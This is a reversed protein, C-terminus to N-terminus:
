QHAAVLERLLDVDPACLVHGVIGIGLFGDNGIEGREQFFAIWLRKGGAGAVNRPGLAHRLNGAVGAQRALAQLRGSQVRPCPFIGAGLLFASPM